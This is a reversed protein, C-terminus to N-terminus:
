DFASIIKKIILLIAIVDDIFGSAEDQWIKFAQRLANAIETRGRPDLHKKIEYKSLGTKKSAFIIFGNKTKNM